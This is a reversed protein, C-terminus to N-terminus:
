FLNPTQQDADLDESPHLYSVVVTKYRGRRYHNFTIRPTNLPKPGEEKVNDGPVYPMTPTTNGIKRSMKMINMRDRKIVDHKTGNNNVIAEEIM